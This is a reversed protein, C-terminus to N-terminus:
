APIGKSRLWARADAENALAKVKLGSGIRFMEAMVRVLPGVNFLAIYLEDKFERFFRTTRARYDADAGRVGNADALIAFPERAAGIWGRLAQILLTAEASALSAGPTYRISALRAAPHWGVVMVDNAVETVDSTVTV